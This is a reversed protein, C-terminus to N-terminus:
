LTLIGGIFSDSFSVFETRLNFCSGLHQTKVRLYCVCLDLPVCDGSLCNDSIKKLLHFPLQLCALLSPSLGRHGPSGAESVREAMVSEGSTQEMAEM